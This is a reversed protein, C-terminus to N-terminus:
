FEWFICMAGFLTDREGILPFATVHLHRWEGDARRTWITQWVPQRQAIARMAPRQDAAVPNRDDDRAAILSTWEDAGMEGTEDFRRNFIEEASENYYVLTGETDVLLIPAAVCSALQRALIIQISKSGAM